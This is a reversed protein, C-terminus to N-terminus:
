RLSQFRHQLCTYRVLDQIRAPVRFFRLDNRACACEARHGDGRVHRAAAHIDLEAAFQGFFDDRGDVPNQAPRTIIIREVHRQFFSALSQLFHIWGLVSEMFGLDFVEQLVKFVHFADFLEAAQM